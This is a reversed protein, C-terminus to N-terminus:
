ITQCNLGPVMYFVSHLSTPACVVWMCSSLVLEWAAVGMIAWRIVYASNISNINTAHELLEVLVFYISIYPILMALVSLSSIIASLVILTKKEGALELLRSFGKRKEEKM